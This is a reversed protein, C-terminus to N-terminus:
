KVIHSIFKVRRVRIGTIRMGPFGTIELIVTRMESFRIKTERLFM